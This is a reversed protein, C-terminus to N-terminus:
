VHLVHIGIYKKNSSEFFFKNMEIPDWNGRLILREECTHIPECRFAYVRSRNFPHLIINGLPIYERWSWLLNIACLIFKLISHTLTISPSTFHFFLSCIVAVLRMWAGNNRSFGLCLQRGLTSSKFVLPRFFILGLFMDASFINKAEEIPFHFM